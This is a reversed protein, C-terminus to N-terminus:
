VFRRSALTTYLPSKGGRVFVPINQIEKQTKYVSKLGCLKPSFPTILHLNSANLMKERNSLFLM